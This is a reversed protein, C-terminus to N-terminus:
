KESVTTDPLKRLLSVVIGNGRTFVVPTLPAQGRIPTAPSLGSHESQEFMAVQGRRAALLVTPACATRTCIRTFVVQSM